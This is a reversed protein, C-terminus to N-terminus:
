PNRQNAVYYVFYMFNDANRAPAGAPVPEEEWPEQLLLALPHTSLFVLDLCKTQGYRFDLTAGGAPLHSMEHVVIAPQSDPGTAPQQWFLSTLFIPSNNSEAETYAIDGSELPEGTEDAGAPYFTGTISKIGNLLSLVNNVNQRIMAQTEATANGLYKNSIAQTGADWPIKDTYTKAKAVMAKAAAIDRTLTALQASTFEPLENKAKLTDCRPSTTGPSSGATKKAMVPPAPTQPAPNPQEPNASPPVRQTGPPPNFTGSGQCVAYCQPDAQDVGCRFGQNDAAGLEDMPVLFGQTPPNIPQCYYCTNGEQKWVTMGWLSCKGTSDAPAMVGYCVLPNMGAYPNNANNKECSSSFQDEYIPEGGSAFIEGPGQNGAPEQARTQIAMLTLVALVSLASWLRARGRESNM